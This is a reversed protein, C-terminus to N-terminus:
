KPFRLAFPRDNLSRARKLGHRDQLINESFVARSIHFFVSLGYGAMMFLRKHRNHATSAFGQASLEIIARLAPFKMVAIMGTLVPMTYYALIVVREIPRFFLFPPKQGKGVEQGGKGQGFLQSFEGARMLFEKVIDEKFGRGLRKFQQSFVRFIKACMDTHDTHQVCPCSGEKIVGMDVIKYGAATDYCFSIVYAKGIIIEQHMYFRERNDESGLESVGKLLVVIYEESFYMFLDPFCGPHYVDLRHAVTFLREFIHSAIEKTHGNGVVSYYFRIFIFYSEAIGVALGTSHYGNGEPDKLEHASEELM